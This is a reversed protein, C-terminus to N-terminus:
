MPQKRRLRRLQKLEDEVPDDEGIEGRVAMYARSLQDYHSSPRCLSRAFVLRATPLEFGEPEGAVREQLEFPQMTGAFGPLAGVAAM